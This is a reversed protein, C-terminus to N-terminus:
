EQFMKREWDVCTQWPCVSTAPSSSRVLLYFILPNIKKATALSNPDETVPQITLLLNASFFDRNESFKYIDKMFTEVKIFTEAGKFFM